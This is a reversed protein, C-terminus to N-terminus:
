RKTRQKLTPRLGNYFFRIEADTLSRFDGIGGQYDLCVQLLMERYVPEFTHLAVGKADRELKV